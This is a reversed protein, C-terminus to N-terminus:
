VRGRTRTRKAFPYSARTGRRTPMPESSPPACNSRLRVELVLLETDLSKIARPDISMVECLEM